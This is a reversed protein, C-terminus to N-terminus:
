GRDGGVIAETLSDLDEATTVHGKFTGEAVAKRICNVKARHEQDARVEVVRDALWTAM